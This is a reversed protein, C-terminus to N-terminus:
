EESSAEEGEDAAAETPEEVAARKPTHISVVPLNHDEDVPTTLEVGKPLNIDSLHVVQDLAVNSLDITINEPLDKPLCKVEVENLM